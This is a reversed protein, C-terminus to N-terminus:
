INTLFAILEQIQISNLLISYDNISLIITDTNQKYNLSLLNNDECRIFVIRFNNLNKPNKVLSEKMIKIGHRKILVKQDKNVAKVM